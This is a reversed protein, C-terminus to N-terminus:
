VFSCVGETQKGCEGKGEKKTRENGRGGKENRGGRKQRGMKQRGERKQTDPPPLKGGPGM